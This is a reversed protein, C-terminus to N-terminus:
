WKKMKIKVIMNRFIQQPRKEQRVVYKLLKNLIMLLLLVIHSFLIIWLSIWCRCYVSQTVYSSWKFMVAENSCGLGKSINVCDVWLKMPGVYKVYAKIDEPLELNEFKNASRATQNFPFYFHNLVWVSIVVDCTVHFTSLVSTVDM